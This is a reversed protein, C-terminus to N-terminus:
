ELERTRARFKLLRKEFDEEADEESPASPTRTAQGGQAAWRRMKHQNQAELTSTTYGLGGQGSYLAAALIGDLLDIIFNWVRRM